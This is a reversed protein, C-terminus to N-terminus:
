RKAFLESGQKRLQTVLELRARQQKLLLMEDKENM